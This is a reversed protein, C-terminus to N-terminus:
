KGAPEAHPSREGNQAPGKFNFYDHLESLECISSSHSMERGLLCMRYVLSVDIQCYVSMLKVIEALFKRRGLGSTLWVIANYAEDPKPKM